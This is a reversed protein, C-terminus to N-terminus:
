DLVVTAGTGAMVVGATRRLLVGSFKGALRGTAVALYIYIGMVSLLVSIDLVSVLFYDHPSFRTLDMFNPLFVCYFM